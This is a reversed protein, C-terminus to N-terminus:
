TRDNPRGIMRVVAAPDTHHRVSFGVAEGYREKYYSLRKKSQTHLVFSFKDSFDIIHVNSKPRLVRGARQLVGVYSKGASGVMLVDMDAFDADEDVAPSGVMIYRDLQKLYEALEPIPIRMSATETGNAFVRFLSDGQYMFAKAQTLKSIRSALEVGHAIEATLVLMKRGLLYLQAAIYVMADNRAKNKVIGSTKLHFWDNAEGLFVSSAELFHITPTAMVGRNMLVHDPIRAVIPGTLGIVQYDEYWKAQPGQFPTASL